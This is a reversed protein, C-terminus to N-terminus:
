KIPKTVKKSIFFSLILIFLVIFISAKIIKNRLELAPEFAEEEDIESLVIWKMGFLNLPIFSSLVSVGRYDEFILNGTKGSLAEKTGQTKVEQLGVTNKSNKIKNIKLSGVGIEKLLKYYGVSDEILFRSQNRLTYDEGVLYTEGSLGLGIEKWKNNNTMLNNINDIPMQFALVGIIKGKEKIPCAMFSAPHNYSPIYEEFDVLVAKNLTDNQLVKNFAKALNTNRYAGAKLSSAFDIEKYVTYVINATENDIFFIDYYGFRKMFSRIVHHHKKHITNYYFKQPLSDINIRNNSSFHNNAIYFEQLLLANINLPRLGKKNIINVSHDNLQPIFFTDLFDDIRNHRHIDYADRNPFESNLANFGAKFGKMAEITSPSEALALLQNQIQNFYETVQSAKIEKIATLKKFTEQQLTEKADRYSIIGAIFMTTISIIFFTLTLKFGIKM